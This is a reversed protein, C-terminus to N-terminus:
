SKMRREKRKRDVHKIWEYFIPLVSIIIIAVIVLSFNEQVFPINGFFYGGFVFLGVWFIGGVINYTLFKSYKMNGIGAVFPAFTRVIPIFRALVIAKGGHKEFFDKTRDLYEKKFFRSKEFVRAGFINGIWYNLSDGLIAAVSFIIFLLFVNLDGRSAFAAAAFILSDGPLFPTLVFGTELFIIFFLIGYVFIGYNQIIISLYKDIHLIFDIINAM